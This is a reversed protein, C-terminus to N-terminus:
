IIEELQWLTTTPQITMKNQFVLAVIYLRDLQHGLIKIHVELIPRLEMKFNAKILEHNVPVDLLEQLIVQTTILPVIQDRFAFFCAVLVLAERALSFQM